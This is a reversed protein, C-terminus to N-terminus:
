CARALKVGEEYLALAKELEVGERSLEETIKDLRKMADEFNFNDKKEAM